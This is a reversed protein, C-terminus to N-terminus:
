SFEKKKEWFNYLNFWQNPYARVVKEYHQVYEKLAKEVAEKEALTYDTEILLHDVKYHRKGVHIVFYVLLPKGTKYAIQFPNKNFCAKEGLFEVALHAKDNAARDGMIAVVEDRMLANAIEVSVTLSGMSLDIVRINDRADIEEEVSKIADLMTEHMVINIRNSLHSSNSSAAWGGYHSQVLISGQSLVRTPTDIDEYDFRFSKYDARSIFRDVLCLAFSRLHEYYIRHTFPIGLHAYYGKLAKKVNSAFFFYYLTIPYMLYYIFNYGLVRYLYFVLAISWGSGRQLTAMVEQALLPLPAYADMQGAADACSGM